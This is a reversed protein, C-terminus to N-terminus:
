TYLHRAVEYLGEAYLEDRQWTALHTVQSADALFCAAVARDLAHLALRPGM